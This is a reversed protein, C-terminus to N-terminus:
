RLLHLNLTHRGVTGYGCCEMSRQRMQREAEVLAACVVANQDVWRWHRTFQEADADGVVSNTGNAGLEAQATLRRILHPAALFFSPVRM